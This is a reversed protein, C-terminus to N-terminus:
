RRRPSGRRGGGGERSRGLLLQEQRDDRHFAAAGDHPVGSRASGDDSQEIECTKGNDPKNHAEATHHSNADYDCSYIVGGPLYFLMTKMNDQLAHM